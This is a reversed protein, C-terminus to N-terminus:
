LSEFPLRLIKDGVPVKQSTVFLATLNRFVM